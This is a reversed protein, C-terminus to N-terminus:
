TLSFYHLTFIKFIEFFKSVYAEQHYSVIANSIISFLYRTLFLIAEYKKGKKQPVHKGTKKQM